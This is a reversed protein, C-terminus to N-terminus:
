EVQAATLLGKLQIMALHARQRADSNLPRWPEAFNEDCVGMWALGCKIGKFFAAPGPELRYLSEVVRGVIAQLTAVRESAGDRAAEYLAHYLRPFLNAGGCVGGHGGLNVAHALLEEPGILLSWDSRHVLQSSVGQFYALDGSSDKLGIIGPQDMAWRVTELSFTGRTLPPANYLFMPLSTEALLAGLYARLEAQQGDM